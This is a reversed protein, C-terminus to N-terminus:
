WFCSYIFLCYFFFCFFLCNSYIKNQINCHYWLNLFHERENNKNEIKFNSPYFEMYCLSLLYSPYCSQLLISEREGLLDSVFCDNKVKKKSDISFFYHSFNIHPSKWLFKITFNMWYINTYFKRDWSNPTRPWFNKSCFTIKVVMFKSIKLLHFFLIILFSHLLNNFM